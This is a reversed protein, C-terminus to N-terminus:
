QLVDCAKEGLVTYLSHTHIITHKRVQAVASPHAHITLSVVGGQSGYLFCQTQSYIIFYLYAKFLFLFFLLFFCIFCWLHSGEYDIIELILCVSLAVVVVRKRM